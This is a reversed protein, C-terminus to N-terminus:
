RRKLRCRAVAMAKALFACLEDDGTPAILGALGENLLQEREARFGLEDVGVDALVIVDTSEGVLGDCPKATDIDRHVVGAGLALNARNRVLGHFAVGRREVGITRPTSRLM